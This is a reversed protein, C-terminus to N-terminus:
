FISVRILILCIISVALTTSKLAAKYIKHLIKEIYIGSYLLLSFNFLSLTYWTWHIYKLLSSTLSPDDKVHSAFTGYAYNESASSGNYLSRLTRESFYLEKAHYLIVKSSLHMKGYARPLGNAMIRIYTYIQRDAWVCKM